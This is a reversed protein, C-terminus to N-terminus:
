HRKGPPDIKLVQGPKLAKGNLHNLHELASVSMSYHHAIQWLSEGPKVVHTRAQPTDSSTKDAYMAPLPPDASTSATMDQEDAMQMASRLMEANRHPMLLSGPTSTTLFNGQLAPNLRKLTDTEMGAHDAATSLPMNHHIQVAELHQDAPLVPLEVHFRGPDRVVCSIALLKTLHERTIHPVPLKPIAPQEPPLGHQQVLRQVGFEGHNFAYDVLRWDHLQNYYDHLMRMVVDTSASTDLRGDYVHDVHLGMVRATSQVLQWMGAPLNRHGPVPRFQSEVWPLLVFEGAVDYKEAAQQVYVVQPLADRMESEFRQPDQTYRHAWMLIQPDADCDSMAFSGRLKDWVNASSEEAAAPAIVQPAPATVVPPPSSPLAATTVPPPSPLKAPPTACASLLAALAVPLLHRTPKM